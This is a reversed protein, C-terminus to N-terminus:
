REVLTLEILRAILLLLVPCDAVVFRAPYWCCFSASFSQLVFCVAVAIIILCNLNMFIITIPLNPFSVLFIRSCQSCYGYRCSCALGDLNILKKITIQYMYELLSVFLAILLDIFRQFNLFSIIDPLATLLPLCLLVIVYRRCSAFCDLNILKKNNVPWYIKFSKCIPCNIFWLM